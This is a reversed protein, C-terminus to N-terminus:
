FLLGWFQIGNYPKRHIVISCHLWALRHADIIPAPKICIGGGARGGEVVVREAFGMSDRETGSGGADM